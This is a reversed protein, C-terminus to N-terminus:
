DEMMKVTVEFEETTLKQLRLSAAEFASKAGAIFAAKTDNNIPIGLDYLKMTTGLNILPNM